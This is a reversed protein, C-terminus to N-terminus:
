TSPLASVPCAAFKSSESSSPPPAASIAARARSPMSLVKTRRQRAAPAATSTSMTTCPRQLWTPPRAPHQAPQTPQRHCCRQPNRPPARERLSM